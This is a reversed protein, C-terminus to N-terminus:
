SYLWSPIYSSLFLLIVILIVSIIFPAFDFGSIDPILQRGYRMLPETIVYVVQMLPNHFGPNVWSLIVRIIIAFLFFKCPYIVVLGVVTWTLAELPNLFGINTFLFTMIMVKIYIVVFLLTLTATDIIRLSPIIKRLPKVAFDSLRAILQCIPNAASVRHYQLILRAMLMYIAINFFLSILFLGVQTLGAM